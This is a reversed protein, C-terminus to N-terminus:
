AWSMPFLGHSIVCVVVMMVIVAIVGHVLCGPDGDQGDCHGKARGKQEEEQLAETALNNRNFNDDIVCFCIAWPIERPGNTKTNSRM